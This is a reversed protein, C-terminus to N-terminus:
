CETVLLGDVKLYLLDLQRRRVKMGLYVSSLPLYSLGWLPSSSPLTKMFSVYASIMVKGAPM